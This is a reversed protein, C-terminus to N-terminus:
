DRLSHRGATSGAGREGRCPGRSQRLQGGGHFGPTRLLLPFGFGLQRLAEAADRGALVTRSLLHTRATRVGPIGSLRRAIEARGTARVAAPQNLVPANTRRVLAEAAALAEGTTDADGISNLVLDHPPMPMEPRYFEAAVSFRQFVWESLYRQTCVNGGTASVLELVTIPTQTGRYTSAVVCREAFAVSRHFAAAARDGTLELAYSLGVHAARCGAESDLAREFLQVARAGDGSKLVSNGLNVLSLPDAPHAAAAQECLRLSEAEDGAARLLCALNNLAGRHEPAHALVTRYIESAARTQGSQELFSGKDFLLPVCAPDAALREEILQLALSLGQQRTMQPFTLLYSAV